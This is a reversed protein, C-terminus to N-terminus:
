LLLTVRQRRKCQVHGQKARERKSRLIKQKLPTGKGMKAERAEFLKATKKTLYLM